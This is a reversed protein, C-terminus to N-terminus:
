AYEEIIQINSAYLRFCRRKLGDFFRGILPGDNPLSLDTLYITLM